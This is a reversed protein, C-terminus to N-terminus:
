RSLEWRARWNQLYKQALDPDHIILLNETNRSYAAVSFNYSGTITVSQDLIIIKNHQLGPPSDFRVPVQNQILIDKASRNGKRNSKDLIISVALGRKAANALAQAIEKDTFSYAQVYISKTAKNIENIIQYLCRKNPTFCVSVSSPFAHSIGPLNLSPVNPCPQIFEKTAYGIGFGILLLIVFFPSSPIKSNKMHKMNTLSKEVLFVVAALCGKGIM